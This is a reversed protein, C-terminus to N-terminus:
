APQPEGGPLSLVSSNWYDIIELQQFRFVILLADNLPIGIKKAISQLSEAGNVATAFRAEVDNLKLRQILEYGKRTYAPSGNPDPRQSGMLNEYKVYRLSGLQSTGIPQEHPSSKSLHPQSILVSGPVVAAHVRVTLGLEGRQTSGLHDFADDIKVLGDRLHRRAEPNRDTGGELPEGAEAGLSEGTKGVTRRAGFTGGKGGVREPDSAHEGQAAPLQRAELDSARGFEGLGGDRAEETPMVVAQRFKGWWRRDQAVLACMRSFEEVEVDLLESPDLAGAMADGAVALAIVDAAGAPFEEVDGDVVMGAEGESLKEGVFGGLAGDGEKVGSQGEEFFEADADLAEVGVIAGAVAGVGHASGNGSEAEFMAEGPGVSWLGVALGFAEDLGGQSLPGISM